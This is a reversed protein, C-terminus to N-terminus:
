NNTALGFLLAASPGSIVWGDDASCYWMTREFIREGEEKGLMEVYYNQLEILADEGVNCDADRSGYANRRDFYPAHFMLISKEQVVRKLGGLFAVACSSACVNSSEVETTVAYKRLSRGMLYGDELLGGNSSLKVTVPVLVDGVPNKCPAMRSLLREIAFSSDPGITGELKVIHVGGSDCAQSQNMSRTTIRLRDILYEEEDWQEEYAKRRAAVAQQERRKALRQEMIPVEYDQNFGNCGDLWVVCRDSGRMLGLYVEAADLAHREEALRALYFWCVDMDWCHKAVYRFLTEWQQNDYAERAEDRVAGWSGSSGSRLRLTGGELAPIDAVSGM